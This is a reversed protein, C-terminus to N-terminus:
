CIRTASRHGARGVDGHIVALHRGNPYFERQVGGEVGDFTAFAPTGPAEEVVVCEDGFGLSKEDLQEWALWLFENSPPSLPDAVVCPLGCNNLGMRLAGVQTPTRERSKGWRLDLAQLEYGRGGTPARCFQKLLVKSVVHQEPVRLATEDTVERTRDVLHQLEAATPGVGNLETVLDPIGAEFVDPGPGGAILMIM